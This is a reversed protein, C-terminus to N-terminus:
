CDIHAHVDLDPHILQSLLQGPGKQLLCVEIFKIKKNVWM